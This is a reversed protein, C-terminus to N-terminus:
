VGMDRDQALGVVLVPSEFDLGIEHRVPMDTNEVTSNDFPDLGIQGWRVRIILVLEVAPHLRLLGSEANHDCSGCIQVEFNEVAVLTAQGPAKPMHDLLAMHRLVSAKVVISPHVEKSDALCHTLRIAVHKMTDLGGAALNNAHRWGIEGRLLLKIFDGEERGQISEQVIIEQTALKSRLQVDGEALGIECEQASVPVGSQCRGLGGGGGTDHKAVATLLRPVQGLIAQETFLELLKDHVDLGAGVTPAAAM